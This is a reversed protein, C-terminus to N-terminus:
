IYGVGHDTDGVFLPHTITLIAPSRGRVFTRFRLSPFFCLLFYTVIFASQIYEVGHTTNGGFLSPTSISHGTPVGVM